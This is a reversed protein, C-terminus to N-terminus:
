DYYDYEYYLIPDWQFSLEKYEVGNDLTKKNIVNFDIWPMLGGEMFETANFGYREWKKREKDDLDLGLFDFYELISREGALTFNRNFHYMAALVSKENSYFWKDSWTEYYLEEDESPNPNMPKQDDYDQQAMRSEAEDLQEPTLSKRLKELMQSSALAAMHLSANHKRSIYNSFLICFVTGSASLITRWYKPAAIIAKEVITPTYVAEKEFEELAKIAKPTDKYMFYITTALGGIAALSWAFAGKQKFVKGM